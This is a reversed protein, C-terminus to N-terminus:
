GPRALLPAGPRSFAVIAIALDWVALFLSPLPFWYYLIVGVTALLALPETTPTEKEVDAILSDLSVAM